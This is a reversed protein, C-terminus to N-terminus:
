ILNFLMFAAMIIMLADEIITVISMPLHFIDGLCACQIQQKNLVIKLVGIISVSMVFFSVTNIVIPNFDIMYGIGLALEIFAYIYAWSPFRRALIDYMAYSEAFGKLNLLKFFSFVLFFAAMFHRMWQMLDFHQNNIQILVTTLTIYFFILLIPKYTEFWSKTQETMENHELAAIQYKPDLAKQLEKLPVHKDMTITTSHDQLSVEVHTVNDVMLLASKVKAECSSCTMGTIQYKHVM